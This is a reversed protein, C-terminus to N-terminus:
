GVGPGDAGTEAVKDGAINCQHRQRAVSRVSGSRLRCASTRVWGPHLETVVSIELL